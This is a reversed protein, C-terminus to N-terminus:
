ETACRPRTCLQTLKRADLATIMGDGDLDKPDDPGSSPQNRSALLINLDDRDVDGDNDLDGIVKESIIEYNEALRLMTKELYGIIDDLSKYPRAMFKCNLQEKRRALDDIIGSLSILLSANLVNSDIQNYLEEIPSRYINEIIDSGIKCQFVAESILDRFIKADVNTKFGLNGQTNYIEVVKLDETYPISTWILDRDRQNDSESLILPGYKYEGIIENDYSILRIRGAGTGTGPMIGEYVEWRLQGIEGTSHTLTFNITILLPDIVPGSMGKFLDNWTDDRIWIKGTKGAKVSALINYSPGVFPGRGFSAQFDGYVDFGDKVTLYDIPLRSKGNDFVFVDYEERQGLNNTSIANPLGFNHALEHVTNNVAEYAVSSTSSLLAKYDYPAMGTVGKKGHDSFYGDYTYGIAKSVGIGRNNNKRLENLGKLDAMIEEEGDLIAFGFLSLFDSLIIDFRQSAILVDGGPNFMLGKDSVPFTSQILLKDRAVFESSEVNCSLPITDCHSPLVPFYIIDLVNTEKVVANIDVSSLDNNSSSISFKYSKGKELDCYNITEDCYLIFQNFSEGQDFSTEDTPFMVTGDSLDTITLEIEGSNISGDTDVIIATTRQHVLEIPEQDQFVAQTIRVRSDIDFMITYSGTQQKGASGDAVVVTYTGTTNIADSGCTGSPCIISVVTSGSSSTVLSGDPRYLSVRPALSGGSTDEVRIQISAGANAFFSYSDLDGIDINDGILSGNILPGGENAGPALTFYIDYNGTQTGNAISNDVVVTYLGPDKITCTGSPCIIAAVKSGSASPSRVIQSGNPGSLTIQPALTGSTVGVRIQVGAGANASFTYTNQEGPSGIADHIVGGNILSVANASSINVIFFLFVAQLKFQIVKANNNM